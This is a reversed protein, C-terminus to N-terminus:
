TVIGRIMVVAVARHVKYTVQLFGWVLKEAISNPQHRPQTSLREEIEAESWVRSLCRTVFVVIVRRDCRHM